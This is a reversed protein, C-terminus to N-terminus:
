EAGAGRDQRKRLLSRYQEWIKHIIKGSHASEHTKVNRFTEKDNNENTGSTGPQRVNGPRSKETYFPLLIGM